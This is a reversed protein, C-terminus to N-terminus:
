FRGIAHFDLCLVKPWQEMGACMCDSVSCLVTALFERLIEHPLRYLITRNEDPLQHLVSKVLCLM